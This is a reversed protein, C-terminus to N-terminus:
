VEIVKDVSETNDSIEANELDLVDEDVITEEFTDNTIEDKSLMMLCKSVKKGVIGLGFLIFSIGGYIGIPEAIGPLLQSTLLAKRITAIDYGDTLAQAVTSRYLIINSVLLTVGILAVVSAVIFLAIAAGSKGTKKSLKEEKIGM